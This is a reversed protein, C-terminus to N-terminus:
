GGTEGDRRRGQGFGAPPQGGLFQSDDHGAHRFQRRPRQFLLTWESGFSAILDNVIDVGLIQSAENVSQDMQKVQQPDVASVIRRIEKYVAGADLSFLTASVSDQPVAKIAADSIPARSLLMALGTRDADMGIYSESGWDKGSFGSTFVATTFTNLNLADRVKPWKDRAEADPAIKVGADIIKIVAAVDVYTLLAASDVSQM